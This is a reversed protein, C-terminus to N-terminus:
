DDEKVINYINKLEEYSLKHININGDYAALPIDKLYEIMEEKTVEEKKIESAIPYAKSINRSTDLIIKKGDSNSKNYNEILEEQQQNIINEEKRRKDVDYGMLYSPSVKLVESIIDIKDQKADYKKNLWDSISSPTINTKRSLEAQTINNESMLERLRTPFDSVKKHTM